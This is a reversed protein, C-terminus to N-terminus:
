DTSQNILLFSEVGTPGAPDDVWLVRSRRVESILARCERLPLVIDKRDVRLWAQCMTAAWFINTAHILPFYLSWKNRYNIPLVVLFPSGLHCQHCLVQRGIFSICSIHTRDRPQSSGQLLFHFGLGTNKGPSDQPCLLRTPLLGYPWLSNSLAACVWVHHSASPSNSRCKSQLKKFFNLM